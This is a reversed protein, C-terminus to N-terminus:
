AYCSAPSVADPASDASSRSREAVVAARQAERGEEETDSQGEVEMAANVQGREVDQPGEAGREVHPPGEAVREQGREAQGAASSGRRRASFFRHQIQELSLGRTEPLAFTALLVQLVNVAAFLWFTGHNGLGREMAPFFHIACFQVLGFYLLVMNITIARTSNPLLEVLYTFTVPAIGAGYSLVTALAGALVLWAHQGDAGRWFYAGIAACGALGLLGAVQPCVSLRVRDAPSRCIPSSPIRVAPPPDPGSGDVSSVLWGLASRTM